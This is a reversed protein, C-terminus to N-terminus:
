GVALTAAAASRTSFRAPPRRTPQDALTPAALVKSCDLERARAVAETTSVGLSAHVLNVHALILFRAARARSIAVRIVLGVALTAATVSATSSSM